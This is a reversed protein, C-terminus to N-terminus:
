QLNLPWKSAHNQFTQEMTEVGRDKTEQKKFERRLVIFAHVLVSMFTIKVAIETQIKM